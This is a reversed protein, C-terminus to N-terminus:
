AKKMLRLGLPALALALLFLVYGTSNGTRPLTAGLVQGPLTATVSTGAVTPTSTTSTNCDLCSIAGGGGGGGSSGGGSTPQNVSIDVSDSNNDTNIDIQPDLNASAENHITGSSVDVTVTLVLTDTQNVAM